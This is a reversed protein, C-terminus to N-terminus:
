STTNISETPNLPRSTAVFYRRVRSSLLYALLALVIPVGLLARTEAGSIGAFLDGALNAGLIALAAVYGGKRRSAMGWFAFACCGCLGVLLAIAWPGMAEFGSRARPNVMWMPELPGGPTALSVAALGSVMTAAAFFVIAAIIGRPIRPRMILLM